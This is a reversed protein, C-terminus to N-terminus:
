TRCSLFFFFFSFFPLCSPRTTSCCSYFSKSPCLPPSISLLHSLSPLPLLPPVSAHISRPSLPHICNSFAPPSVCAPSLHSPPNFIVCNTKDEQSFTLHFLSLPFPLPCVSSPSFPNFSTLLSECHSSLINLLMLPLTVQKHGANSIGEKGGRIRRWTM